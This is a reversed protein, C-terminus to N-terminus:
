QTLWPHALMEKASKRKGPNYQLMIMLFDAIETADTDTFLHQNVLLEKISYQKFQSVNKIHYNRDKDFLFKRRKSKKKMIFPIPGLIKEFLYLHHIDKTLPSEEPDFLAFGTLLEYVVCGVSWMDCAYSYNFDLIIEPARYHRDQIENKTRKSYFYSNGFDTLGINCHLVYEDEVIKATDTSKLRNNRVTGFMTHYYSEIDHIEKYDLYEILDSVSQQRAQLGGSKNKTDSESDSDSDTDDSDSDNEDFDDEGQIIDDEDITDEEINESQSVNDIIDLDKVCELGLHEIEEVLCEPNDGYIHLLTEYKKQFCSKNFIDIIAAHFPHVGRFLINEPKIDTHIINLEGHLVILAKLLQRTIEKVVVIPLGYKYKGEAIIDNLSGAYLDYVSCVFKIDDNEEYVFYEIMKICFTESKNNAYENIKKIIVVERCGDEYCQFDQIKMAMYKNGSIDYTIWVDANSGSGIKKLLVYSNKLVLGSYIIEDTIPALPDVDDTDDDSESESSVPLTKEHEDEESESDGKRFRNLRRM